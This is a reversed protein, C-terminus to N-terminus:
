DRDGIPLAADQGALPLEATRARASEAAKQMWWTGGAAKRKNRARARRQLGESPRFNAQAVKLRAFTACNPCEQGDYTWGCAGCTIM